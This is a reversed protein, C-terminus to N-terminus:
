PEEEKRYGKGSVFRAMLVDFVSGPMCRLLKIPVTLRWPFHVERKGVAIGAVIRRAAVEPSQLFPMPFRNRDTLPTKVFGPSVTVVKVGRGRLDGRLSELFHTLAAKSACYPAATPFGRVASISSVGVITGVGRRLMGPLAAEIGYIAGLFNVAMIREVLEADFQDPFMSDGIGADLIVADLGGWADEVERVAWGVRERDTVDGEQVLVRAAARERQLEARLFELKERRRAFLAVDSGRSVLERALAAGIGSSAGSLWVRWGAVTQKKNQRLSRVSSPTPVRDGTDLGRVRM